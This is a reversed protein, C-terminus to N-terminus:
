LDELLHIGFPLEVEDPDVPEAEVTTTIVVRTGPTILAAVPRGGASAFDVFGGGALLAAEIHRKLEPIAGSDDLEFRDEDIAIIPRGM